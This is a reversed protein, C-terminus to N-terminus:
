VVSKRDTVFVCSLLANCCKTPQKRVKLFLGVNEEFLRIDDWFLGMNEWFLGINELFIGVTLFLGVNEEFISIDNWFLRSNESFLGVNELFIRIDWFYVEGNHVTIDTIEFYCKIVTCFLRATRAVALQEFKTVWWQEHSMVISEERKM